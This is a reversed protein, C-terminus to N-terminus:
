ILTVAIAAISIQIGPISSLAQICAELTAGTTIVDDVLLIHRGLFKDPNKIMFKESVNQWRKYRNKKTQTETSIKRVLDTSITATKMTAALGIAFQESQNYGRQAMKKEHLPVPIICAIDQFLYSSELLRGYRIGLEVGIDKRGKYKLAHILHQVTNGKNFYFFAAASEVNARGWFLRFIPNDKELHFNTKPLHFECSHCITQEHRWLNNGCIVCVEPYILSIFDNIWLM